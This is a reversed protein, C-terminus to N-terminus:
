TIVYSIINPYNDKDLDQKMEIYRWSEKPIQLCEKFSGRKPKYSYVDKEDTQNRYEM